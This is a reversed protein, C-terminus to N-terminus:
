LVWGERTAEALMGDAVPDGTRGTRGNWELPRGARYAVTGLLVTETLQAAYPFNCLTPAGTRAAHLFEAHHGRSRPLWAEPPSFSSFKEEPFLVYRGYDSLLMGETGVFLHGDGWSVPSGDARKLQSLIEPRRGGDWWEVTCPAM